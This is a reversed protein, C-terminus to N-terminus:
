GSNCFLISIEVVENKKRWSVKTFAFILCDDIKWRVKRKKLATHLCGGM